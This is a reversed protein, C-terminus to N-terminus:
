PPLSRPQNHAERLRAPRFSNCTRIQVLMAKESQCMEATEFLLILCVITTDIDQSNWRIAVAAKLAQFSVMLLAIFLAFGSAFCIVM